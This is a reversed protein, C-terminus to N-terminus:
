NFGSNQFTKSTSDMYFGPSQFGSYLQLFGSDWLCNSDAIWIWSFFFQFGTISIRFGHRPIWFGLSDQIGWAFRVHQILYISRKWERPQCRHYNIPVFSLKKMLFSNLEWLTTKTCWCPWRKVPSGIKRPLPPQVSLGGPKDSVMAHRLM